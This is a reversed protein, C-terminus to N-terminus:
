SVLKLKGAVPKRKVFDNEEFVVVRNRGSQKARYLATDARNVLKELNDEGFLYDAVGISVTIYFTYGGAVIETKELSRRVREAAVEAGLSDSDPLLLAFEEGGYRSLIDTTRLQERIAKVFFKLTKDGVQHGYTDNIVKFFDLDLMLLSIPSKYRSARRLENKYMQEMAARNYVETLPDIKALRLIEERFRENLMMAFSFTLLIDAICITSFIISQMQNETYLNVIAADYLWIYIYRVLLIFSISFFVLSLLWESFNIPHRQRFILFYGSLMCFSMCVLTVITTRFILNPNGFTFYSLSIFTLVTPIFLQWGYSNREKFRLIARFQMAVVAALITNALVTSSFDDIQGREAILVWAIGQLVCSWAWEKVGKIQSPNSNSVVFLIAGMTFTILSTLFLITGIDLNM